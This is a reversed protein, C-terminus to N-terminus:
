RIRFAFTLQYFLAWEFTLNINFMVTIDQHQINILFRLMANNKIISFANSQYYPVVIVILMSSM